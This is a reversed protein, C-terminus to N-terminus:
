RVAISVLPPSLFASSLSFLMDPPMAVRGSKSIQPNLSTGATGCSPRTCRRPGSTSRTTTTQPRWASSRPCLPLVFLRICVMLHLSLVSLAFFAYPRGQDRGSGAGHTRHRGPRGALPRRLLCERGNREVRRIDSPLTLAFRLFVVLFRRRPTEPTVQDPFGENEIMCDHNKDFLSLFHMLEKVVEWNDQLFDEDGTAIFDRYSLSVM